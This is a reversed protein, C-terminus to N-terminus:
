GELYHLTLKGHFIVTATTSLNECVLQVSSGTRKRMTLTFDLNTGVGPSGAHSRVLRQPSDADAVVGSGEDAQTVSIIFPLSESGVSGGTVDIPSVNAVVRKCIVEEPLVLNGLIASAGPGITQSSGIILKEMSQKKKYRSSM